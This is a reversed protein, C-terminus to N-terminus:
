DPRRSAVRGCTSRPWTTARPSWPTPLISSATFSSRAGPGAKKDIIRVKIGQATLWLALVLGTPGAGVILVDDM